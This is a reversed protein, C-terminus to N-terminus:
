KRKTLITSNELVFGDYEYTMFVKQGIENRSQIANGKEDTFTIKLGKSELDNVVSEVRDTVDGEAVMLQQFEMSANLVKNAKVNETYYGLGAPLFFVAFLILLSMLGMKEVM